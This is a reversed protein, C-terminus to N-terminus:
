YLVIKVCFFIETRETEQQVIEILNIFMDFLYYIKLLTSFYELDKKNQKLYM